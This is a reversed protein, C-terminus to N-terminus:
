GRNQPLLHPRLIPVSKKTGHANAVVYMRQERRTLFLTDHVIHLDIRFDQFLIDAAVQSLMQLCRRNTVLVTGKFDIEPGMISLAQYIPEYPYQPPTYVAQQPCYLGSDM